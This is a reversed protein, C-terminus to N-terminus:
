CKSAVGFWPHWLAFFSQSVSLMENLIVNKICKNAVIYLLMKWLLFLPYWCKIPNIGVSLLDFWSVQQFSSQTFLIPSFYQTINFSQESWSLSFSSFSLSEDFDRKVSAERGFITNTKKMRRSKVFNIDDGKVQTKSLTRLISCPLGSYSALHTNQFWKQSRKSRADNKPLQFLLSFWSWGIVKGCYACKVLTLKDL